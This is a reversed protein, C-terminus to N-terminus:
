YFDIESNLVYYIDYRVAHSTSLRTADVTLLQQYNWGTQV